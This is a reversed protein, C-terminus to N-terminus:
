ANRRQEGRGETEIQRDIESEERRRASGKAALWVPSKPNIYVRATGYKKRGGFNWRVSEHM